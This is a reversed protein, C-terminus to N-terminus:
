FKLFMDVESHMKYLCSNVLLDLCQELNELFKFHFFIQTIEENESKSTINSLQQCTKGFAFVNTVQEPYNLVCIDEQDEEIDGFNDDM